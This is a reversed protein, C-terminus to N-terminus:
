CRDRKKYVVRGVLVILLAVMSGKRRDSFFICLLM